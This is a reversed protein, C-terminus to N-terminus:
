YLTGTGFQDLNLDRLDILVSADLTLQTLFEPDRLQQIQIVSLVSNRSLKRIYLERHSEFFVCEATFRQSTEPTSSCLKYTPNVTYQSFAARNVQLIYSGTLM